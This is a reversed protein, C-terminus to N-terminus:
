VCPPFFPARQSPSLKQEDILVPEARLVQTFGSAGFTIRGEKPFNTEIKWDYYPRDLCIKQNEIQSRTVQAFSIEHIATQFGSKGWDIAMRLDIVHRFTLTVPAVLFQCCGDAECVWEVIYDIDFILDSRWDGKEMDGVSIHVGYVHSDHWSLQDFEAETYNM